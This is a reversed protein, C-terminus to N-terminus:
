SVRDQRRPRLGTVAVRLKRRLAREALQRAAAEISSAARQALTLVRQGFDDTSPSL